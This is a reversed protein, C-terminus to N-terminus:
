AVRRSGEPSSHRRIEHGQMELIAADVELLKAGLRRSQAAMEGIVALVHHRAECTLSGTLQARLIAHCARALRLEDAVRRREAILFHVDM